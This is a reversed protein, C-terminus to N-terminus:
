PSVGRIAIAAQVFAGLEDYIVTPTATVDIPRGFRAVVGLSNETYLSNKGAVTSAVDVFSAVGLDNSSFPAGSGLFIQLNLHNREITTSDLVTPADAPGQYIGTNTATWTMPDAHPNEVTILIASVDAVNGDNISLTLTSSWGSQYTAYRVHLRMGLKSQTAQTQWSGDSVSFEKGWMTGVCLVMLDGPKVGPPLEIALSSVASDSNAVSASLISPLDVDTTSATAGTYGDVWHGFSPSDEHHVVTSESGYRRTLGDQFSTYNIGVPTGDSLKPRTVEVSYDTSNDFENAYRLDDTLLRVYNKQKWGEEDLHTEQLLLMAMRITGVLTLILVMSALLAALLEVLTFGCRDPHSAKM